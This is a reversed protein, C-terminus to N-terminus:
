VGCGESSRIECAAMFTTKRQEKELRVMDEGTNACRQPSSGGSYDRLHIGSHRHQLESDDYYTQEWETQRSDNGQRCQM